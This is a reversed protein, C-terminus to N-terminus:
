VAVVEMLVFRKTKSIPKSECVIVTDGLKAMSNEDHAMLNKTRQVYKSYKPHKVKERVAIKCTKESIAVVLGTYTRKVKKVNSNM